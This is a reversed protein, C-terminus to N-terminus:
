QRAPHMYLLSTGSICPQSNNRPDRSSQLLSRRWSV